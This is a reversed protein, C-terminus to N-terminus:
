KGEDCEDWLSSRRKKMIEEQLERVQEGIIEQEPKQLEMAMNASSAAILKQAQALSKGEVVELLNKQPIFSISLECGLARAIRELTSIQVDKRKGKELMTIDCQNGKSRVALQKQTMGLAKRILYIQNFISLGHRMWKPVDQISKFKRSIQLLNIRDSM